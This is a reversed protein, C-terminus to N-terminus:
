DAPRKFQMVRRAKGSERGYGVLRLSEFESAPDLCALRIDVEPSPLWGPAPGPHSGPM